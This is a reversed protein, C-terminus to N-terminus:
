LVPRFSTEFFELVKCCILNDADIPASAAAFSWFLYLLMM